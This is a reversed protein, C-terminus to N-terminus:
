RRDHVKRIEEVQVWRTTSTPTELKWGIDAVKFRCIQGNSLTDPDPSAGGVCYQDTDRAPVSFRGGGFQKETSDRGCIFITPSTVRGLVTQMLSVDGYYTPQNPLKITGQGAVWNTWEVVGASTIGVSAVCHGASVMLNDAATGMAFGTTCAGFPTGDPKSSTFASGGNLKGTDNQRSDAVASTSTSTSSTTGVDLQPRESESRLWIAVNYTGYRDALAKRLGTSADTSQVVVLNRESWIHTAFLATGAPITANLDLVQDTIANLAQYSNAVEAYRPTILYPTEAAPVAAAKAAPADENEFGISLTEDADGNDLATGTLM